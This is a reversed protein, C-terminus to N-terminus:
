TRHDEVSGLQSYGGVELKLKLKRQKEREGRRTWAGEAGKTRSEATEEGASGTDPERAEVLYM